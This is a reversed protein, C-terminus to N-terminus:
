EAHNCLLEYLCCVTETGEIVAMMPVGMLTDWGEVGVLDIVCIKDGDKFPYVVRDGKKFRPIKRKEEDDLSAFMM